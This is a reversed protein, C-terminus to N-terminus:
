ENLLIAYNKMVINRYESKGKIRKIEGDELIFVHDGIACVRSMDSGESLLSSGVFYNESDEFGLVDLLTPAIDLSNRGKVDIIKHSCKKTYFFLPIKSIFGEQESDFASKYDPEPYTAHDATFVLITNEFVNEKEMRKFFKGFENDYNHFKNLQWNSADGYKLDPSDFGHHTGVNYFIYLYPVSDKQNELLVDGMLEYMEKDTRMRIGLADGCVVTDSGLTKLYETFNMNSPETNFVVSKYGERRLIDILSYVKTETLKRLSDLHMEGLGKMNEFGGKYQYASYLQGRLARFTAATHNYYNDFVVSRAHLDNLNPTLNLGLNNYVDLVESSLGETFILIVNPKEPMQESLKFDTGEIKEKHFYALVQEKETEKLTQGTYVSKVYLTLLNTTARMPSTPIEPSYFNAVLLSGIYLVLTQVFAGKERLIELGRLPMFLVLLLVVIAFVYWKLSDGLNSVMDVNELMLKSIFEGTFYYVLVQAFFIFLLVVNLWYGLRKNHQAVKECLIFLFMLEIISCAAMAWSKLSMFVFLTIFLSIYLKNIKKIWNFDM